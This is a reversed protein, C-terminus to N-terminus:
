LVVAWARVMHMGNEWEDVPTSEQGMSEMVIGRHALPQQQVCLFYQIQVVTQALTAAFVQGGRSLLFLVSFRQFGWRAIAAPLVTDHIRQSIM